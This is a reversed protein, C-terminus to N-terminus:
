KNHMQNWWFRLILWFINSPFCTPWVQKFLSNKINGLLCVVHMRRRKLTSYVHHTQLTLAELVYLVDSLSVSGIKRTRIPRCRIKQQSVDGRHQLKGRFHVGTLYLFLCFAPLVITVYVGEFDWHLIGIYECVRFNSYIVCNWPTCFSVLSM